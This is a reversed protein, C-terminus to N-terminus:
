LLIVLLLHYNHPPVDHGALNQSCLQVGAVSCYRYMHVKSGSSRLPGQVGLVMPGEEVSVENRREELQWKFITKSYIQTANQPAHAFIETVILCMFCLFPGDSDRDWM